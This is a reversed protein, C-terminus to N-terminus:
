PNILELKRNGDQLVEIKIKSTTEQELLDSAKEPWEIFCWASSDLYEEIGMDYLEEEEEIRYLDFHYVNEKSQTSRYENVISFTPSSTLDDIGLQKALAKILTTKGSGMPADFLIIKHKVQALIKQAVQDIEELSFVLEM